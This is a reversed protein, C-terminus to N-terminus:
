VFLCKLRFKCTVAAISQLSQVNVIDQSFANGNVLFRLKIYFSDELFM